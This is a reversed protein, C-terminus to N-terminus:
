IYDKEEYMRHNDLTATNQKKKLYSVAYSIRMLSQLESTHEESRNAACNLPMPPRTLPPSAVLSPRSSAASKRGVSRKCSPSLAAYVSAVTFFSKAAVTIGCGPKSTTRLVPRAPSRMGYEGFSAHDAVASYRNSTPLM